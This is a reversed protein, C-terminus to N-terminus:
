RTIPQSLGVTTLLLSNLSRCQVWYREVDVIEFIDNIGIIIQTSEGCRLVKKQPQEINGPKKSSRELM